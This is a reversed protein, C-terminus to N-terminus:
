GIDRGPFRNPVSGADPPHSPRRDQSHKESKGLVHSAGRRDGLIKTLHMAARFTGTCASVVVRGARTTEFDTCLPTGNLRGFHEPRAAAWVERRRGPQPWATM